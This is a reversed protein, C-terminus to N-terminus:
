AHGTAEVRSSTLHLNTQVAIRRNWRACYTADTTRRFREYGTTKYKCGYTHAILSALRRKCDIKINALEGAPGTKIWASRIYGETTISARDLYLDPKEILVWESAGAICPTALLTIRFLMKLM